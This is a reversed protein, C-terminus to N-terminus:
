GDEYTWAYELSLLARQILPFLGIMFYSQMHGFHEVLHPPPSLPFRHRLLPLGNPGVKLM